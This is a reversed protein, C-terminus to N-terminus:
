KVDNLEIIRRLGADTLWYLFPLLTLEIVVFKGSENICGDVSVFRSKFLSPVRRIERVVESWNPMQMGALEVGTDPHVTCQNLTYPVKTVVGQESVTIPFAGRFVSGYGRSHITPIRIATVFWQGRVFCSRFDALTGYPSLKAIDKHPFIREEVILFNDKTPEVKRTVANVLGAASHEAGDPEVFREGRREIVFIGQGNWLNFPKVVFHNPVEFFIKPDVPMSDIIRYTKPTCFGHGEMFRKCKEKNSCLANESPDMFPWMMRRYEASAVSQGVRDFRWAEAVNMGTESLDYGLAQLREQM